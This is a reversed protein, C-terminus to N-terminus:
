PLVVYNPLWNAHRALEVADVVIAMGLFWVSDALNRQFSGVHAVWTEDTRFLAIKPFFAPTRLAYDAFEPFNKSLVREESRIVAPYMLGFALALFMTLAISETLAGLGVIGVFNCVYLPHRCMSYPGETVLESSKRGSIYLACWLRGVTAVTIGVMGIARLLGSVWSDDWQSHGALLSVLVVTVVARWIGIRHRTLFTELASPASLLAGPPISLNM